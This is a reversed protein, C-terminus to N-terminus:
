DKDGKWAISVQTTEKIKFQKGPVIVELVDDKEFKLPNDKIFKIGGKTTKIDAQRVVMVPMDAPLEGAKRWAVIKM